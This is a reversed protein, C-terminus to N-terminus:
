RLELLPRPSIATLPVLGDGSCQLAPISSPALSQASATRPAWLGIVVAAALVAGCHNRRLWPKM